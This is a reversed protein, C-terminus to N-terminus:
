PSYTDEMWCLEVYITTKVNIEERLRRFISCARGFSFFHRDVVVRVTWPKSNNILDVFERDTITGGLIDIFMKDSYLGCAFEPEPLSVWNMVWSPYVIVSPPGAPPKNFTAAIMLFYGFIVFM